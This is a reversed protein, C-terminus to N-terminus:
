DSRFSLEFLSVPVSFLQSQLICIFPRVFYVNYNPVHEYAHVQRAGLVDILYVFLCAALVFLLIHKVFVKYIM